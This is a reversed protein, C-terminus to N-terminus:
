YSEQGFLIDFPNARHLRVASFGPFSRGAPLWWHVPLRIGIVSCVGEWTCVPHCPPEPYSRLLIRREKWDLGHPSGPRLGARPCPSLQDAQDPLAVRHAPCIRILLGTM